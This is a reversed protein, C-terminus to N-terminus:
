QASGSHQHPGQRKSISEMVGSSVYELAGYGRRATMAIARVGVEGWVAGYEWASGLTYCIAVFLFIAAFVIGFLLEAAILERVFYAQLIAIVALAWVVRRRTKPSVAGVTDRIRQLLTKM